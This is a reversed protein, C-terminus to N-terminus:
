AWDATALRGGRGSQGATRSPNRRSKGAVDLPTGLMESRCSGALGPPQLPDHAPWPAYFKAIAANSCDATTAAVVSRHTICLPRQCYSRWPAGVHLVRGPAPAGKQGFIRKKASTPNHLKTMRFKVRCIENARCECPLSALDLLNNEFIM